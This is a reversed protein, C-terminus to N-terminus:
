QQLRRIAESRVQDWPMVTNPDAAHNQLRRDLEQRQEDSLGVARPSNAISDWIDQALSIRDPIPLKDIGLDELTPPM